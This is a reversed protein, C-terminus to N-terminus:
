SMCLLVPLAHSIFLPNLYQYLESDCSWGYEFLANNWALAKKDTMLTTFCVCWLPETNGCIRWLEYPEALGVTNNNMFYVCYIRFMLPMVHIGLPSYKNMNQLNFWLQFLGVKYSHKLYERQLVFSNDACSSVESNKFLHQSAKCVCNWATFIISRQGWVSSLQSAAAQCCQAQMPVWHETVLVSKTGSSTRLSLNNDSLDKAEWDAAM